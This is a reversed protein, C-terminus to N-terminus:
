HIRAELPLRAVIKAEEDALEGLREGVHEPDEYTVALDRFLEAHGAEAKALSHYFSGLEPDDVAEALLALREHSRAEILGAVLLRDTLRGPGGSRVQRRLERAYPDGSDRGLELGRKRLRAYVARFHRLEEIALGTLRRVLREHEPYAQVLSLAQAAAKKECHAHDVLV